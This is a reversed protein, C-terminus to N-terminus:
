VADGQPRARRAEILAAAGGITREDLLEGDRIEVGFRTGLIVELEVLVLSDLQLSEFTSGATVGRPSVHFKTVLTDIILEVIPNMAQGQLNM